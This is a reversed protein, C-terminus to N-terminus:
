REGVNRQIMGIMGNFSGNHDVVGFKEDPPEVVVFSCCYTYASEYSSVTTNSSPDNSFSFLLHQSCAQKVKGTSSRSIILSRNLINFM